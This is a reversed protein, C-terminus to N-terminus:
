WTIAKPHVMSSPGCHNKPYPTLYYYTNLQAFPSNAVREFRNKVFKFVGLNVLRNLSLNHDKRNYIDNPEFQMAQEFLYPKYLNNRDIVYYGKYLKAGKSSTDSSSQNLRFNTYIFVDKITYLERSNKPLNPKLVVYMNVRNNGITSDTEILLYEPNFYYFGNDKLYGDIRERELKIVDLNYPEGRKLLTKSEAQRITNGLFSSDM